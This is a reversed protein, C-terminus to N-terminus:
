KLQKGFLAYQRIPKTYYRSINYSPNAKNMLAHIVRKYGLQSAIAHCKEVLISGLGAYNKQPLIAVTKLIVTEIASGRQAELADPLAFLFGIPKNQDEEAIVILEPQIYPLIPRYLSIFETKSIPQYLFNQRFAAIAIQYIKELETEVNERNLPRITIGRDGLRKKVPILRRDRIKLDNCLASYYHAIPFFEQELFVQYLSNPTNPELFFPPYNEGETVLRYNYWTNGDIPAIAFTCEQERLHQCASQLLVTASETNNRSFNGIYGTSHGQYAITNQWWIKLSNNDM